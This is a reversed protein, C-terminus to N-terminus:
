FNDDPTARSLRFHTQTGAQGIISHVSDLDDRVFGAFGFQSQSATDPNIRLQASVLSQLGTQNQPSGAVAYSSSPLGGLYAANLNVNGSSDTQLFSSAPLGGLSAAHVNTLKSGDGIFSPARIAGLATANGAADIAFKEVGAVRGSFINGGNAADFVGATGAPSNTQGLVGTTAGTTSLSNGFVAIGSDSLTKGRIGYTTGTSRSNEGYVGTGTDGLAIGMIGFGHGTTADSEARLGVGGPAHNLSLVTYGSFRQSPTEAFIASNGTGVAHLSLGSGDQEVLLVDTASNSQMVTTPNSVSTAAAHAALVSSSTAPSATPVSAPQSALSQLIQPLESRLVYGSAPVGSLADASQAKMAYAVTVLLSRPSEPGNNVRIGLWQADSSTFISQPVGDPSSLGLLTSYHGAADVDVNQSEQWLPEGGQQDKYTSFILNVRTSSQAPVTGTYRIWSPSSPISHQPAIPAAQDATNALVRGTIEQAHSLKSCCIAFVFVITAFKLNRM